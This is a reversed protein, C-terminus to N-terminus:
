YYVPIVKQLRHTQSHNQIFIDRLIVLHNMNSLAVSIAEDETDVFLPEFVFVHTNSKVYNVYSMSDIGLYESTFEHMAQNIAPYLVLRYKENQFEGFYINRIILIDMRYEDKPFTPYAASIFTDQSLVNSPLM